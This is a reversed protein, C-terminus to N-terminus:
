SERLPVALVESLTQALRRAQEPPERGDYLLPTHGDTTRLRLWSCGDTHGVELAALQDGAWSLQEPPRDVFIRRILVARKTRLTQVDLAYHKDCPPDTDATWVDLTPEPADAPPRAGELRVVWRGPPLDAPLDLTAETESLAAVPVPQPDAAVSPDAPHLSAQLKPRFSEGRLTLAAGPEVETPTVEHLVPARGCAIVLLLLSSRLM